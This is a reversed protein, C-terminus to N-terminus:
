APYCAVVTYRTTTETRIVDTSRKIYLLLKSRKIQRSVRCYLAFNEDDTSAYMYVASVGILREAEAGLAIVNVYGTDDHVTLRIWARPFAYIGLGCSLCLTGLTTAYDYLEYCHPCAMHWSRACPWAVEVHGKIWANGWDFPDCSLVDAITTVTLDRVPPLLVTPDLYAREDFVLRVLESINDTCWADLLKAELVDPCVLVISSPHISLSLCKKTTVRVRIAIIIPMAHMLNEIARGEISEYDGFLTLIIPRKGQDVIIIDRERRLIGEVYVDRAPLSNVVVGMINILNNTDAVFHLSDYSRLGFYFPLVPLGVDTAERISTDSNIVWYFPYFCDPPLEALRRIEANSIYYKRFPLLLGDVCPVNDDYVIASVKIGQSDGFRFLRFSKSISGHSAVKVRDAEVVHVLTMWGRTSESVNSIRLLKPAAAVASSADFPECPIAGLEPVFSVTSAAATAMGGIAPCFLLFGLYLVSAMFGFSLIWRTIRRWNSPLFSFIEPLARPFFSPANILYRWNSPLLSSIGPFPCLIWRTIRRWNSPLFSFIEPLARPFFSPANILYRWNSPLLSSIGPFPCLIWRTIRRVGIAPYFLLFRLYFVSAMFGFSLIWRRIFFHFLM